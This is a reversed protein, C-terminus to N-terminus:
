TSSIPKVKPTQRKSKNAPFTSEQDQNQATKLLIDQQACRSRLNAIETQERAREDLHGLLLRGPHFLEEELAQALSPDFDVM